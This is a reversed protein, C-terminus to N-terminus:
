LDGRKMAAVLYEACRFSHALITLTIPVGGTTPFNSGDVVFLNPVEHSQGFPNVVSTRPDTGMRVTGEVLHGTTEGASDAAVEDAGAASLLELGRAQLYRGISKHEDPVDLHIRAVPLGWRDRVEPDLDIFTGRNPFFEAFTEFEITRSERFRERIRDKLAAGWRHPHMEKAIRLARYIPNPHQFGIRITGGKPIAAVEKPVTYFDQVSRGIFPAPHRLTLARSPDRDYRYIGRGGSFVSFQLRRGVLGSGNALGDPFSASKSLLLLRASEIASASVCVVRAKVRQERGEPDFYICGEVRGDRGLTVERGMCGARIECRGTAVADALLTEQTSSKAGVECGYSGCFDCYVCQARGRYPRSLIARAERFPHVGIRRGAEDIAGGFPHTSIPPLPYPRSRPPDFPNEAADGSVGIAEEAQVYYPELDDYTYPWDDLPIDESTGYLSKMRFDEPHLRYFYGAMHVTGGGVCQAMWGIETRAAQKAGRTLITHPDDLLSPIFFGRRVVGIEDHVYASRPHNPGKELVLVRLGAAAAGAAMPSAGAGSGIVVFDFTDNGM